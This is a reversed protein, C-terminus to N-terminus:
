HTNSKPTSNMLEFDMIYHIKLKFKNNYIKYFFFPSVNYINFM